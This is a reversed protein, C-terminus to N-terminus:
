DGKKISYYEDIEARNGSYVLDADFIELEWLLESESADTVANVGYIEFIMQAYESNAAEFENRTIGFHKVFQVIAMGDRSRATLAWKNFEEFGVLEYFSRPVVSYISRFKYADFVIYNLATMSEVQAIESDKLEDAAYYYDASNGDGTGLFEEDPAMNVSGNESKAPFMVHFVTPSFLVTAVIFVAAVATLVRPNMRKRKQSECAELIRQKQLDDLKIEEAAVKLNDFETM